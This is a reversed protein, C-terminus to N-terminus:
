WSQQMDPAREKWFLVGVCTSMHILGIPLMSLLMLMAIGGILSWFAISVLKDKWQGEKFTHQVCFMIGAIAMNGKVGWMAGHAHNGTLYTAHMYYNVVPLNVFSGMVGAGYINWFNVGLMFLGVVSM